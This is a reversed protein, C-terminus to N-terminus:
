GKSRASNIFTTPITAGAVARKADTQDQNWVYSIAKWGESTNILLRTELLQQM